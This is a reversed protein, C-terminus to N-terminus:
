DKRFWWEGTMRGNSARGTYDSISSANNFSIVSLSLTWRKVSGFCMFNIDDNRNSICCNIVSESIVFLVYKFDCIETKHNIYTQGNFVKTQKWRTFSKEPLHFNVNYDQWNYCQTTECTILSTEFSDLIEKTLSCNLITLARLRTQEGTSGSKFEKRPWQCLSKSIFECENGHRHDLTVCFECSIVFITVFRRYHRPDSKKRIVKLYSM